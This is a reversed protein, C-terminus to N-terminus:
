RIILMTADSLIEIEGNKGASTDIVGTFGLAALQAATFRGGVTARRGSLTLRRLTLVNGNLDVVTGAAAVAEHLKVPAALKVRACDEVLLATQSLDDDLGGYTLAPIVTFPFVNLPNNDNRIIITGAGESQAADQLYITGASSFRNTSGGPDKNIAEQNNLQGNKSGGKATINALNFADFTAGPNTLRIAIRGGGSHGWFNISAGSNYSRELGHARIFGAGSLSGATINISGGPGVNASGDWGPSRGNWDGTSEAIGDLRLEGSVRLTVAGGGAVSHDRNGKIGSSGPMVPNLISGYAADTSSGQQGGHGNIQDTTANNPAIANPSCFDFGSASGERVVIAAASGHCLRWILVIKACGEPAVAGSSCAERWIQM